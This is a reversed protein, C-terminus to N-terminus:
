SPQAQADPAAPGGTNRQKSITYEALFDPDNEYEEKVQKGIRNANTKSARDARM